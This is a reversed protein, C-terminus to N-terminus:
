EGIGELVEWREFAALLAQELEDLRSKAQAIATRDQKYFSPDAMTAHLERLESELSEIQGPLAEM